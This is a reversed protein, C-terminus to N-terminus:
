TDAPTGPVPIAAPGDRGGFGRGCRGSTRSSPKVFGDGGVVVCRQREANNGNHGSRTPLGSEEGLPGTLLSAASRVACLPAFPTLVVEVLPVKPSLANVVAPPHLGQRSSEFSRVHVAGADKLGMATVPLMPSASAGAPLCNRCLASRRVKSVADADSNLFCSSGPATSPIVCTPTLSMALLPARGVALLQQLLLTPLVVAALLGAALEITLGLTEDDPVAMSFQM